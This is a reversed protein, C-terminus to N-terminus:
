EMALKELIAPDTKQWISLYFSINKEDVNPLAAILQARSVGTAKSGVAGLKMFAAIIEGKQTTYASWMAKSANILRFLSSKRAGPTRKGAVSKETKAPAAKKTSTAKAPATKATKAAKATKATKSTTSKAAFRRSSAIAASATAMKSMEKCDVVATLHRAATPTVPVSPVTPNLLQRAVKVVDIESAPVPRLAKLLEPSAVVAEVRIGNNYVSIAGQSNEKELQLLVADGAQDELLSVSWPTIHPEAATVRPLAVSFSAPALTLPEGARQIARKVMHLTVAMEPTKKFKLQLWNDVFRAIEDLDYKEPRVDEALKPTLVASTMVDADTNWVHLAGQSNCRELKLSVLGNKHKLLRLSKTAIRTLARVDPNSRAEHERVVAMSKVLAKREAADAEAQRKRNLPKSTPLVKGPVTLSATVIRRASKVIKKAERKALKAAEYHKALLDKCREAFDSAQAAHSGNVVGIASYFAQTLNNVGTEAVLVRERDFLKKLLALRNGYNKDGRLDDLRFSGSTLPSLMEVARVVNPPLGPTAAAIKAARQEAVLTEAEHVFELAKVPSIRPASKEAGSKIKVAAAEGRTRADLQRQKRQSLPKLSPLALTAILTSVEDGARQVGNAYRLAWHGDDMVLAARGDRHAYGSALRGEIAEARSLTFGAATLVGLEPTTAPAAKQAVKASLDMMRAANADSDGAKVVVVEKQATENKLRLIEDSLEDDTFSYKAALATIEADAAAMDEQHLATIALAEQAAETITKKQQPTKTLPVAQTAAAKAAARKDRKAKADRARKAKLQDETM